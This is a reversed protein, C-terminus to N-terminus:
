EKKVFFKCKCIGQLEIEGRHFVCPCVIEKDKEKNGTVVRCPCYIDGAKYKRMILGKAIGKVVTQDTNLKIGVKNAYEEASKILKEENESNLTM